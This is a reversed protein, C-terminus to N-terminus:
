RCLDEYMLRYEFLEKYEEKTLYFGDVKEAFAIGLEELQSIAIDREWKIQEFLGRSVVNATPTGVLIPTVINAIVSVIEMKKEEDAADWQKLMREAFDDADIYRGM